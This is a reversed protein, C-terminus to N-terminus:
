VNDKERLYINHLEKSKYKFFEKKILRFYGLITESKNMKSKGKRIDCRLVIPVETIYIPLRSLKILMEVMCAFGNEEILRNGYVFFAKKLVSAKYARYFSSYTHVGKISFFLKIILNAALSLIIRSFTTGVINGGSAYCSALVLDYGSNIEELMSDLINLDSTNDAEKTVIIDTEKALELARSFGARFVQGVGKNTNHDIIELPIRDRFKLAEEKTSDTSGDNILIVYYSSNLEKMKTNINSLLLGINEKENYAPIIFIIM